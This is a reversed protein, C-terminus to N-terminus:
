KLVVSKNMEMNLDDDVRESNAQSAANMLLCAITRSLPAPVGQGRTSTTPPPAPSIKETETYHCGRYKYKRFSNVAPRLLTSASVSLKTKNKAQTTPAATRQESTNDEKIPATERIGDRVLRTICASLLDFVGMQRINWCLIRPDGYELPVHKPSSSCRDNGLYVDFAM